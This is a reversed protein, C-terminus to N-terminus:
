RERKRRTNMLGVARARVQPRAQWHPAYQGYLQARDLMRFAVAVSYPTLHPMFARLTVGVDLTCM